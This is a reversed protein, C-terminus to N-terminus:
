FIKYAIVEKCSDDLFVSLVLSFWQFIIPHVLRSNYGPKIRPGERGLDLIKDDLILDFVAITRVLHVLGLYANCNFFSVSRYLIDLKELNWSQCKDVEVTCLDARTQSDTTNTLM